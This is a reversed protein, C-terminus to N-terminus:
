CNGDSSACYAKLEKTLLQLEKELPELLAAAQAIDNDRGADEIGQAVQTARVGGCGAVLGKVAHAAGRVSSADNTTVAQQLNNFLPPLDNLLFGALEAFLDRDGGFRALTGEVDLVPEVPM